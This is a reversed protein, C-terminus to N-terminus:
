KWTLLNNTTKEEANASMALSQPWVTVHEPTVIGADRAAVPLWPLGLTRMARGMRSAESLSLCVAKSSNVEKFCTSCLTEWPLPFERFCNECYRLLKEWWGITPLYCANCTWLYDSSGAVPPLFSFSSYGTGGKCGITNHCYPKIKKM